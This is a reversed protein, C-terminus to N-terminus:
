LKTKKNGRKYWELIIWDRDLWPGSETMDLQNVEVGDIGSIPYIYLYQIKFKPM